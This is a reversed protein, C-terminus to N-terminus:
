FVKGVQEAEFTVTFPFSLGEGYTGEEGGLDTSVTYTVRFTAVENPQLVIYESAGNYSNLVISEAAGDNPVVELNMFEYLGNAVEAKVVWRFALPISGTNTVKVLRYDTSGPEIRHSTSTEFLGTTTEETLEYWIENNSEWEEPDALEVKMDLNGMQIINEDVVIEESWWAYTTGLLMTVSFMLMLGASFLAKKM